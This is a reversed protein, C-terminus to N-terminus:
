FSAKEYVSPELDEGGLFVARNLASILAVVGDIKNEPLEKRPYINDKNDTHCVVNSIMWSLVPDGDHAIRKDIVLAELEKMPESFNMVSPRLEVMPVGEDLLRTSLQTAQAPDFALEQFGYLDHLSLIEDEIYAYDITAGPTTTLRKDHVWGEYQSNSADEVTDEPLWFRAFTTYHTKNGIVREFLLVLAAIDTRTALDLGGYCKCGILDEPTIDPDSCSDWKRVDMWATDANVWVNLHKTLFNNLASAVQSAKHAKRAIDDPKVSIGWNPNAKAWVDPDTWDDGDDVTYIIGFYSEDTFKGSLIKTVYNRQEYCIGSRNFGATTILWLLPQERAGTATEVVDFVDRTKHAHLEDIVGCHINLGDLNGGQDRSLAKFVADTKEVSVVNAHALVGFRKRLGPTMEVMRKADKWVIRAQDRTTAASYVEPGGEGDACLCYLAIGSSLTSKANKRPVEVYVTKFRRYGSPDVWGFATTIIFIQWPELKIKEGRLKGKIHPLKEIFRCPHEARELRFEYGPVGHELDRLQRECAQRVYLCAPIRGEVVDYAYGIAEGLYDRSM